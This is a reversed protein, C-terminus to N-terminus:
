RLTTYTFDSIELSTAQAYGADPHIVLYKTISSKPIIPISRFVLHSPRIALFVFLLRSGSQIRYSKTKSCNSRYTELSWLTM